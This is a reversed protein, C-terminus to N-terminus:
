LTEVLRLNVRFARFHKRHYAAAVRAPNSIQYRGTGEETHILVASYFAYPEAGPVQQRIASCILCQRKDLFPGKADFAAKGVKIEINKQM